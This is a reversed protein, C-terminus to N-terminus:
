VVILRKLARSVASPKMTIFEKKIRQPKSVGPDRYPYRTERYGRM